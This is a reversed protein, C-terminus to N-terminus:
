PPRNDEVGVDRTGQFTAEMSVTPYWFRYTTVARQYDADDRAHEAGEQTPYGREFAYPSAAVVQQALGAYLMTAFGIGTLSAPLCYRM